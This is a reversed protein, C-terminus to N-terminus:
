RVCERHQACGMDMFEGAPPVRERHKDWDKDGRCYLKMEAVNGLLRVKEGRCSSCSNSKADYAFPPGSSMQYMEPLWCCNDLDFVVVKPLKIDTM